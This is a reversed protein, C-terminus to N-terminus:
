NIINVTCIPDQNQLDASTYHCVSDKNRLLPNLKRPASVRWVELKAHGM